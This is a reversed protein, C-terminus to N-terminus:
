GGEIAQGISRKCCAHRCEQDAPCHPVQEQVEGRDVEVEHDFAVGDGERMFNCGAQSRSYHGM